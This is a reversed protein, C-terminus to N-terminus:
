KDNRHLGAPHDSPSIGYVKKFANSFNVRSGFGSLMGIAEITLKQTDESELLARAHKCRYENILETFSKNFESNIVSSLHHKPINTQIVVTDQSCNPHLYIKDHELLYLLKQRYDNIWNEDLKPGRNSKVPIEVWHHLSLGNFIHSQLSVSIVLVAIVIAGYCFQDDNGHPVMCLAMQILHGVLALGLLWYLWRMNTQYGNARLLYREKQQKSARLFCVLLYLALQIYFLGDLADDMWHKPDADNMLMGIRMPLPLTTFYVVYVLAPLAPLAHLVVQRTTIRRSVDFLQLEFFYISPGILMILIQDLPLFWSLLFYMKHSHAYYLLLMLLNLAALLSFVLVLLRYVKKVPSKKVWLLSSYVVLIFVSYVSVVSIFM